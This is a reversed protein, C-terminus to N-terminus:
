KKIQNHEKVFNVIEEESFAFKLPYKNELSKRFRLTNNMSGIDTVKNGGKYIILVQTNVYEGVNNVGSHQTIILKSNSVKELTIRNDTSV